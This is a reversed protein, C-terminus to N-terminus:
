CAFWISQAHMSFLSASISLESLFVTLSVVIPSCIPCWHVQTFASMSAILVNSSTFTLSRRLDTNEGKTPLSCLHWAPGVPRCQHFQGSSHSLESESKKWQRKEILITRRKSVSESQGCNNMWGRRRLSSTSYRINYSWCRQQIKNSRTRGVFDYNYVAQCLTRLLGCQSSSEQHKLNLLNGTLM